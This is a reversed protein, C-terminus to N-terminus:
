RDREDPWGRHAPLNSVLSREGVLRYAVKAGNREVVLYPEFGITWVEGSKAIKEADFGNMTEVRWDCYGGARCSLDAIVTPRARECKSCIEM